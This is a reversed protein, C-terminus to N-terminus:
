AVGRAPTIRYACRRAGAVIHDTREVAVDEGLVLRFLALESRCFGQCATAAACIPCHNEILVWGDGERRWEAMYGERDRLAALAAVRDELGEAEAGAADYAAHQRAERDAILRDLGAPGFVRGVSEILDVTLAAHSDPFRDHGADTLRWWRSPRGVKERRDDYGVLGEAELRALHQRTGQPTIALAAGLAQATMPGRTKLLFLIRDPSGDSM